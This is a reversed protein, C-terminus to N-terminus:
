CQRGWSAALSLLVKGRVTELEELTEDDACSVYQLKALPEAALPGLQNIHHPNHILLPSHRFFQFFVEPLTGLKRQNLVM